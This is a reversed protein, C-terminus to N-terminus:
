NYFNPSVDLVRKSQQVNKELKRIEFDLDDIDVDEDNENEKEPERVKKTRVLQSHLSRFEQIKRQLKLIFSNACLLQARLKEIEKKYKSPDVVNDCKKMQKLLLINEDAKEKIQSESKMLMNKMDRNNKREKDLQEQLQTLKISLEANKETMIQSQKSANSYLNQLEKIEIHHQRHSVALFDKNDDLTKLKTNLNTIKGDKKRIIEELEKIHRRMDELMDDKVRIKNEAEAKLQDLESNLQINQTRIDDTLDNDFKLDRIQNELDSIKETLINVSNMERKKEKKLQHKLSIIEENKTSVFDDNNRVQKALKRYEVQLAKMRDLTANYGYIQDHVWAVFGGIDRPADPFNSIIENVVESGTSIASNQILIDNFIMCGKLLSMLERFVIDLHHCDKAKYSEKEIARLEDLKEPLYGITTIFKRYDALNDIKDEDIEFQSLFMRTRGVQERLIYKNISTFTQTGNQGVLFLSALEANHTLVELLQVHSKLHAVLRKITLSPTVNKNFHLIMDRLLEISTPDKQLQKFILIQEKSTPDIIKELKKLFILDSESDISSEKINPYLSMQSNLTNIFSGYQPSKWSFKSSLLM